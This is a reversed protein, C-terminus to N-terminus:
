AAVQLTRRFLINRIKNTANLASAYGTNKILHPWKEFNLSILLVKWFILSGHWSHEMSLGLPLHSFSWVTAALLLVTCIVGPGCGALIKQPAPCFPQLKNNYRVVLCSKSFKPPTITWNGMGQNRAQVVRRAWDIVAQERWTCKDAIRLVYETQPADRMRPWPSRAAEVRRLLRLFSNQATYKAFLYFM